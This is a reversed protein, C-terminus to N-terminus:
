AVDQEKGTYSDFRTIRGHFFLEVVGCPGGRHKAIILETKGDRKMEENKKPERYLFMVVDADQELSGTERLDSLQPRGKRQEIARNMQVLTLVPIKMEKALIKLGRSNEAVAQERSRHKSEGERMLGIYDVVVLALGAGGGRKIELDVRKAKARLESLSLDATDDIWIPYRALVIGADNLGPDEEKAVLGLSIKKLDVGSLAALQRDTVEQEDMEMSFFAVAYGDCAVKTAINLALATKGLGPRAALLYLKCGNLGYLIGDLDKFGTELGKATRGAKMLMWLRYKDSLVESVHKITLMNGADAIGRFAEVARDLFVQADGSYSDWSAAIKRALAGTKRLRSRDCVRRVYPDLGDDEAPAQAVYEEIAVVAADRTKGVESLRRKDQLWGVVTGVTLETQQDALACMAQWMARHGSTSFDDYTMKARVIDLLTPRALVWSLVVREPDYRGVKRLPVHEATLSDDESQDDQIAAREEDEYVQERTKSRHEIGAAQRASVVESESFCDLWDKSTYRDHGCNSHKCDIWGLEHGYGPAFLVTSSDFTSGKSHESERPCRILWQGRQKEDGIDGRARLAYFFLGDGSYNSSTAGPLVKREPKKKSLAEAAAMDPASPNCAWVGIATPTGITERREPHDGERTAHPLRYLRQWDKCGPDAVIGFRRSLYAVWRLYTQTWREGDTANRIVFPEPLRYLIRYGGRTRFVFPHPHEGTLTSVKEIEGLWWAESASIGPEGGAAKHAAPCDCDFLALQMPVGDPLQELADDRLRREVHPVSYGATHADTRFERTLADELPMYPCRAGEPKGERDPWALVRAYPMVCVLPTM